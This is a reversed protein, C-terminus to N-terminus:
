RPFSTQRGAPAAMGMPMASGGAAGFLLNPQSLYNSGRGAADFLLNSGGVAGSTRAATGAGVDSSSSVHQRGTRAGVDSSSSVYGVADGARSVVAHDNGARSVAPNTQSLFAEASTASAGANSSAADENSVLTNAPLLPQISVSRPFRRSGDPSPGRGSYPLFGCSPSRLNANLTPPALVPPAALQPPSLRSLPAAPAGLAPPPASGGGTVPVVPAGTSNLSGTGSQEQPAVAGGGGFFRAFM